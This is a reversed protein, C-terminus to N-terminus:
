ANHGTEATRTLRQLHAQISATVRSHRAAEPHGAPPPPAARPPPPDAPRPPPPPPSARPPAHPTAHHPANAHTGSSTRPPTSRSGTAAACGLLRPLTM